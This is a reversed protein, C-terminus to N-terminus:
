EVGQMMAPRVRKIYTVIYGTVFARSGHYFRNASVEAPVVSGDGRLHLTLTEGYPRAREGHLSLVTSRHRNPVGGARGGYWYTDRARTISAIQEVPHLVTTSTESAQVLVARIEPRKTLAAEIAAPDVARGWEVKLEEVNLGFTKGRKTCPRPTVM